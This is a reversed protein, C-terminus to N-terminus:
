YPQARPPTRTSRRVPAADAPDTAAPAPAPAPATPAAAERRAQARAIAQQQDAVLVDLSRRQDIILERAMDLMREDGMDRAMELMQELASEARPDLELAAQVFIMAPEERGLEREARAALALTRACTRRDQAPLEERDHTELWQRLQAASAAVAKYRSADMRNQAIGLRLRPDDPQERLAATLKRYAEGHKGLSGVVDSFVLLGDIIRRSTM